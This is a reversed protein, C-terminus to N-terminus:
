SLILLINIIQIMDFSTDANKLATIRLGPTNNGSNLECCWFEVEFPGKDMM